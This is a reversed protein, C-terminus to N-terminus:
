VHTYITIPNALLVKNEAYLSVHAAYWLQKAFTTDSSVEICIFNYTTRAHHLELQNANYLVM